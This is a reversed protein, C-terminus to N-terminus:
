FGDAVGWTKLYASKECNHVDVICRM